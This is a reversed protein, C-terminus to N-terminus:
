PEEQGAWVEDPCRPRLEPHKERLWHDVFDALRFASLLCQCITRFIPLPLTLELDNGEEDTVSDLSISVGDDWEFRMTVFLCTTDDPYTCRLVISKHNWDEPVPDPM